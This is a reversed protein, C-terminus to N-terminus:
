VHARGIQAKTGVPIDTIYNDEYSPCTQAWCNKVDDHPHLWAKATTAFKFSTHEKVITKEDTSTEDFLYKFAVGNDFVRFVIKMTKGDTNKVDVTWENAKYSNNLKKEAPTTYSDEVTKKNSINVIELSSFDSDARKLGLVSPEVIVQGDKKILYRLTKSEDSEIEVTIKGDPSKMMKNKDSCSAFLVLLLIGIFIIKNM